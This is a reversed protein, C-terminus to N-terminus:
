SGIGPKYNEAKGKGMLFRKKKVEESGQPPPPPPLAILKCIMQDTFPDLHRNKVTLDLTKLPCVCACMLGDHQSDQHPTPALNSDLFLISEGEPGTGM